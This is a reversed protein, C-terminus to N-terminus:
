CTPAALKPQKQLELTQPDVKMLQDLFPYKEKQKQRDKSVPAVKPWKEDKRVILVGAIYAGFDDRIIQRHPLENLVVYLSLQRKALWPMTQQFGRNSLFIPMGMDTTWLGPLLKNQHPLANILAGGMRIEGEPKLVRIMEVFAPLADIHELLRYSLVRDFSADKFPLDYVSAAVAQEPNPGTIKEGEQFKTLYVSKSFEKTFIKSIEEPTRPTKNLVGRVAYIPDVAIIDVGEKEHLQRAFNSLGEGISIVKAQPPFYDKPLRLDDRIFEYERGTVQITDSTESRAWNPRSPKEENVRDIM